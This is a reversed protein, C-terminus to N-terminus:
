IRATLSRELTWGRRVRGRVKEYDLGAQRCKYALSETKETPETLAKEIDWGKRLRKYVTDPKIGSAKIADAIKSKNIPESLARAASWGLCLRHYLTGYRVGVIEAAQALTMREGRFYVIINARSNNCQEKKTAWRCNGPEYNGNNDIRDLTKSQPREGMDELFNEFKMWRDSIAIGRGGYDAFHKHKRNTCRNIMSMWTKWTPSQKGNITHGHTRNNKGNQILTRLKWCGCSKTNRSKVSYILAPFQKGCECLFLGAQRKWGRKDIQPELTRILEPKKPQEQPISCEEPITNMNRREQPRTQKDPM